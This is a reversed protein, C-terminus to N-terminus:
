GINSNWIFEYYLNQNVWKSVTKPKKISEPLGDTLVAHRKRGKELLAERVTGESKATVENQHQGGITTHVWKNLLLHISM